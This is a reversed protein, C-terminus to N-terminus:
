NQGRSWYKYIEKKRATKFLSGSVMVCAWYQKNSLACVWRPSYARSGWDCQPQRTAERWASYYLTMYNCTWAAVIMSDWALSCIEQVEIWLFSISISDERLALLVFSRLRVTHHIVLSHWFNNAELPTLRTDHLQLCIELEFEPRESQCMLSSRM